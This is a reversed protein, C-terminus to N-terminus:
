SYIIESYMDKFIHIKINIDKFIHIRFLYLTMLIEAGIYAVLCISSLKLGFCLYGMNRLCSPAWVTQTPWFMLSSSSSLNSSPVPCLSSLSCQQDGDVNSKSGWLVWTLFLSLTAFGLSSPELEKVKTYHIHPQLAPTEQQGYSVSM